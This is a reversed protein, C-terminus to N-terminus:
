RGIIESPSSVDLSTIGDLQFRPPGEIPSPHDFKNVDHLELIQYRQLRNVNAQLFELLRVSRGRDETNQSANIKFVPIIRHEAMGPNVDM